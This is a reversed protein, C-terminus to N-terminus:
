KKQKPQPDQPTTIEVYVNRKVVTFHKRMKATWKTYDQNLMKLYADSYVAGPSDLEYLALYKPTGEVAKFRRGGLFGPASLREPLHEQDYWRNFEEETEPDIEMMVLMLGKRPEDMNDGRTTEGMPGHDPYAACNFYGVLKGRDFAYFKYSM